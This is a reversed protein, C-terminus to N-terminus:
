SDIFHKSAEITVLPTDVLEDRENRSGCFLQLDHVLPPFLRRNGAFATHSASKKDTSPDPASCFDLILNKPIKDVTMKSRIAAM